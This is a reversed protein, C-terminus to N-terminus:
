IPMKYLKKYEDNVNDKYLFFIINHNIKIKEVFHLEPIKYSERLEGSKLDIQRLTTIGNRIFHAYAKGTFEDTFIEKKLSPDKHWNITVMSIETGESSYERIVGNTLDFLYLSSGIKHLPAFVPKYYIMAAFISDSWSYDGMTSFRLEDRAQVMKASDQVITLIGDQHNAANFYYYILVQNKYLYQYFFYSASLHESCPKLVSDLMQIPYSYPLLLEKGDYFIQEISKKSLLHVQDMCDKYLGNGKGPDISTITDGQYNMLYLRTDVMRRYKNALLLLNGEYFEFDFVYLPKKEILDVIRGEEVNVEGIDYSKQELEIIVPEKLEGIKIIKTRYSIHSIIIETENEYYEIRFKGNKDSTTGDWSNQIRIHVGPLNEGTSKDIIEGELLTQSVVSLSFLLFLPIAIAKIQSEVLSLIFIRATM